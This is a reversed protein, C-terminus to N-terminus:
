RSLYNKIKRLIEQASGLTQRHDPHSWITVRIFADKVYESVRKKFDKNSTEKYTDDMLHRGDTSTLWVAIGSHGLGENKLAEELIKDRKNTRSCSGIYGFVYLGRKLYNQLEYSNWVEDSFGGRKIIQKSVCFSPKIVVQNKNKM